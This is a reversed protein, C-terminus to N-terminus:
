GVISFFCSHDFIQVAGAFFELLLNLGSNPQDKNHRVLDSSLRDLRWITDIRYMRIDLLLVTYERAYNM